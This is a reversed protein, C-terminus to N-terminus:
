IFWRQLLTTTGWGYNSLAFIVSTTRCTGHPLRIVSNICSGTPATSARQANTAMGPHSGESCHHMILRAFELAGERLSEYKQASEGAPPHAFLAQLKADETLTVHRIPM